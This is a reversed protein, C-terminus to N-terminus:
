KMCGERSPKMASVFCSVFCTVFEGCNGHLVAPVFIAPSWRLYSWINNSFFLFFFLHVHKRICRMKYTGCTTNVATGGNYLISVPLSLVSSPACPTIRLKTVDSACLVIVRAFRTHTTSNNRGAKRACPKAWKQHYKRTKHMPQSVAGPGSLM